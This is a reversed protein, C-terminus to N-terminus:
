DDEENNDETQIFVDFRGTPMGGFDTQEVLTPNDDKHERIIQQSEQASVGEAIREAM